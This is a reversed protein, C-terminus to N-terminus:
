KGEYKTNIYAIFENTIDLSESAYILSGNGVAGLIVDYGKEKGFSIGHRNIMSWIQEQYQANLSQDESEYRESLGAYLKRQKDLTGKDYRPDIMNKKILLELSDLTAKHTSVQANFKQELEQKGKFSSFVLQVNVYGVRRGSLSNYLAFASVALSLVCFLSIVYHYLKM